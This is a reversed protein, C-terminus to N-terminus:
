GHEIESVLRSLHLPWRISCIHGETFVHEISIAHKAGIQPTAAITQQHPFIDFEAITKHRRSLPQPIFGHGHDFMGHRRLPEALPPKARPPKSESASSNDLADCPRRNESNRM